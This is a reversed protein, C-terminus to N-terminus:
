AAAEVALKSEHRREILALVPRQVGGAAVLLDNVFLVPATQIAHAEMQAREEATIDEVHVDEYPINKSDLFRRISPCSTCDPTSILRVKTVVEPFLASDIGYMTDSMSM